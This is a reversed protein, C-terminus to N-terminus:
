NAQADPLEIVHNGISRGRYNAASCSDPVSGDGVHPWFLHHLAAAHRSITRGLHLRV